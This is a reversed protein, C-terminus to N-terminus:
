SMSIRKSLILFNSYTVTIPQNLFQIMEENGIFSELTKGSKGMGQKSLRKDTGNKIFSISSTNTCNNHRIKHHGLIEHLYNMLLIMSYTEKETTFENDSELIDQYFLCIENIFISETFLDFFATSNNYCFVRFIKKPLLSILDNKLTQMSIITTEYNDKLYGAENLENYDESIASNFQLLCQTLASEETLHNIIDRLMQAAKEYPNSPKKENNIEIIKPEKVIQYFFNTSINDLYISGYCSLWEIIEENSLKEDMM